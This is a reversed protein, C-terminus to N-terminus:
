MASFAMFVVRRDSRVTTAIGAFLFYQVALGGAESGEPRLNLDDILKFLCVFLLM